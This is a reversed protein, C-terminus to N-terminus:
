VQGAVREEGVPRVLVAQDVLDHRVVLQEVGGDGPRLLETLLRRQRDLLDLLDARHGVEVLSDFLLLLAERLHELGLVGLLADAREQPLACRVPLPLSPPASRGIARAVRAPRMVAVSVSTSRRAPSIRSASVTTASVPAPIETGDPIGSKRVGPVPSHSFTSGIFTACM